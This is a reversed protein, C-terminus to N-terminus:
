PNQTKRVSSTHTWDWALSNPTQPPTASACTKWQSSPKKRTMMERLAKYYNVDYKDMQWRYQIINFISLMTLDYVKLYMSFKKGLYVSLVLMKALVTFNPVRRKTPITPARQKVTCQRCWVYQIIKFYIKHLKTMWLPLWRNTPIVPTNNWRSHSLLLQVYCLCTASTNFLSQRDTSTKITNSIFPAFFEETLRAKDNDEQRDRKTEDAQLKSIIKNTAYRTATFLVLLYRCERFLLAVCCIGNCTNWM